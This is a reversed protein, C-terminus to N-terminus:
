AMATLTRRGFNTLDPCNDSRDPVGDNDLDDLWVAILTAANNTLPYDANAASVAGVAAFVGTLSSMTLNLTEERMADRIRQGDFYSVMLAPIPAGELDISPLYDGGSEHSLILLGRAGAEFAHVAKNYFHCLGRHVVAINGSIESPNTLPECGDNEDPATGDKVLVANGTVPANLLSPANGGEVARYHRAFVAPSNVTLLPQPKGVPNTVVRLSVQRIEGPLLSTLTIKVLRYMVEVTGSAVQVSDYRSGEPISLRLVVTPATVPSFNSISYRLSVLEAGVIEQPSVDGSVDLDSALSVTDIWWGARSVSSDTGTRWRFRTSQGAAASPLRVLTTVWGNTNGCWAQRGALPNPGSPSIQGFYPRLLFQGGASICCFFREFVEAPM